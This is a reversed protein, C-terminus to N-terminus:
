HYENKLIKEAEKWDELTDINIHKKSNSIVFGLKNGYFTGQDIVSKTTIYISGDRHYAPPLEQRRTIIESDGTSISLEGKNEIFVWSPNYENPVPLVSLLSDLGTNQFKTIAEDISGAKRFPVTPQLLCIADYSDGNQEMFEIAHKVVDISKATDSALKAPRLFPVLIGHDRGIQQIEPDDTTLIINDLLLSQQAAEITYAILPKDGLIKKNKGPVGKSGGRAPIIGLIRM